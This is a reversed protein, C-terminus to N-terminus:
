FTLGLLATGTNTKKVRDGPGGSPTQAEWRWSNEMELLRTGGDGPTKSGGFERGPAPGVLRGAAGPCVLGGELARSNSAAPAEQM